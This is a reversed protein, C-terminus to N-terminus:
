FTKNSGKQRKTCPAAETFPDERFTFSYAGRSCIKERLASGWPLFSSVTTGKAFTNMGRLQM